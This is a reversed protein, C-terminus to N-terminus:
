AMRRKKIKKKSARCYRYKKAVPLMHIAIKQMPFILKGPAKQSKECKQRQKPNTTFNLYLIFGGCRNM